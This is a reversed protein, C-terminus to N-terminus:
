PVTVTTENSPASETGASDVSRVVYDYTVGSQVATDAYSADVDLASNLLEYSGGSAARYVRYGVVPAASSTPPVWNLEVTHQTPPTGTSSDLQFVATKSVGDATATLTATETSSVASATVKFGGTSAGAPVSVTAPVQLASNSSSLKVVMANTTAASLSVSCAKTTPGTLTQTGCSVHSLSAGSDASPYVTIQDTVTVKSAKATITVAVSQSVAASVADFAGTTHGTPVTVTAPVSLATNSSKLTVTTPSTAAASLYASCEKSQAGTLSLTGCSVKTLTAVTASGKAGTSISGAHVTMGGCGSLFAVVCGFLLSLAGVRMSRNSFPSSLLFLNASKICNRNFEVTTQQTDKPEPKYGFGPRSEFEYM